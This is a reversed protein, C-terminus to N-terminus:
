ALVTEYPASTRVDFYEWVAAWFDDLHDVSWHWLDQYGGFRLGRTRGLWGTFATINADAVWEAPPQWLLQDETVMGDPHPATRRGSSGPM